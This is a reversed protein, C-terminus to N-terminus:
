KRGKKKTKKTKKKSKTENPKFLFTNLTEEETMNEEASIKKAKHITMPKEGYYIIENTHRLITHYATTHDKEKWRLMGYEGDMILIHKNHILHTWSDHLSTKNDYLDLDLDKVDEYKRKVNKKGIGCDSVDQVYSIDYIKGDICRHHKELFISDMSRNHYKKVLSTYYKSLWEVEIFFKDKINLSFDQTLDFLEGSKIHRVVSHVETNVMKVCRCSTINYGKVVEFEIKGRRQNLLYVFKNCNLHCNAIYGIPYIKLLHLPKDQKYLNNITEVMEVVNPKYMEDITNQHTETGNEYFEQTKQIAINRGLHDLGMLNMYDNFEELTITDNLYPM